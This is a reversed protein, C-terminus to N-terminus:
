IDGRVTLFINILDDEFAHFYHDIGKGDTSHSEPANGKPLTDRAFTTLSTPIGRAATMEVAEQVQEPTLAEGGLFEHAGVFLESIDLTVWNKSHSAGANGEDSRHPIYCEHASAVGAGAFVLAASLATAGIIKRIM